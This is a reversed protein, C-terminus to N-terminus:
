KAYAKELVACWFEQTNTQSVYVLEGNVTPLRDDIIVDELHWLRVLIIGQYETSAELAMQQKYDPFM